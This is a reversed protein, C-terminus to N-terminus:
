KKSQKYLEVAEEISSAMIMTGDRFSYPQKLTGVERKQEKELKDKKM